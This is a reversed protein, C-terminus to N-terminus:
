VNLVAHESHELATVHVISYINQEKHLFLRVTTHTACDKPDGQM